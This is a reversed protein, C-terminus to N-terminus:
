HKTQEELMLPPEHREALEALKLWIDALCLWTLRESPSTSRQAALFCAAGKTRYDEPHM